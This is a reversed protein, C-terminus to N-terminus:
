PKLNLQPRILHWNGAVYDYASYVTVLTAILIVTFDIGAFVRDLEPSVRFSFIRLLLVILIATAQVVAKIKGTKRASVVVGRYACFTRLTAVLSDRYLIFVILYIPAQGGQVFCIFITLRSISDALPDLIKGFDTVENRYRAVIGDFLDTLESVIAIVLCAIAGAFTDHLFVLVFIPSLVLRMATLVMAFNTQREISRWTWTMFIGRQEKPERRCSPRRPEGLAGLAYGFIATATLVTTLPRLGWRNLNGPVGTLIALIVLKQSLLCITGLRSPQGPNGSDLILLIGWDSLSLLDKGLVDM